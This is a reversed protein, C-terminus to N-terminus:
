RSMQAPGLDTDDISPGAQPDDPKNDKPLLQNPMAEENQHYFYM